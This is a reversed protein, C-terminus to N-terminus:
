SMVGACIEAVGWLLLTWFATLAVLTVAWIRILPWNFRGKLTRFM